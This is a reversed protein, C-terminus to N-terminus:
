EELRPPDYILYTLVLEATWLDGTEEARPAIVRISRAHLGTEASLLGYTLATLQKLTIKRMLVQTPKEKYVTDGLRRPPEPTMRAMSEASIGAAKAANEILGITEASLQEQETALTPRHGFQEIQRGILVCENLDVQATIADDRQSDMYRYAWIATLAPLAVLISLTLTSRMKM